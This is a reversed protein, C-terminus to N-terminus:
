TPTVLGIVLMGFVNLDPEKKTQELLHLTSVTRDFLSRDNNSTRQMCEGIGVAYLVLINKKLGQLEGKLRMIRDVYYSLVHADVFDTHQLWFAM